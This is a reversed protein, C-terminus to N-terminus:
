ATEGDPLRRFIYYAHFITEVAARSMECAERGEM